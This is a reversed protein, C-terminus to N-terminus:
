RGPLWRERKEEEWDAGGRAGSGFGGTGPWIAMRKRRSGGPAGLRCGSARTDDEM